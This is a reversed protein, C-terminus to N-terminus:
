PWPRVQVEAGASYGESEAPVLVWGDSRALATLSLYKAALPEAMGGSRRVPIVEALGVTSAVKRSLTAAASNDTVVAGSLRRLMDRGMTLWAALAADLRGPLLLVPKGSAFGFAATEGPTLGVGHVAVSGARALIHVSDDHRGSGSGGIVVIADADSAALAETLGHSNDDTEAGFLAADDAVWEAAAVVPADSRVPVVRMKPRQVHVEAIGAAALVALDILRLREGARRLPSLGDSDAGAALVGDGPNLPALAEAGSSTVKITDLPAVSDTDAPLAQGADLLVPVQPLLAPAYGGADRTLEAALAWGDILAMPATPQKGAVIDDALVAHLAQALPIERPAVPKVERAILALVDALPTLRAIMQVPESAMTAHKVKL